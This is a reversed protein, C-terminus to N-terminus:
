YDLGLKECLFRGIAFRIDDENYYWEDNWASTEEVDRKVWPLFDESEIIYHAYYTSVASALVLRVEQRFIKDPIHKAVGSM